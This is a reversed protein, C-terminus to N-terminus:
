GEGKRSTMVCISSNGLEDELQKIQVSLSPQSVHLHNSAQRFSLTEAVAVFYRVQRLEM